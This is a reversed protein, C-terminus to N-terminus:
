VRALLSIIELHDEHDLLMLYGYSQFSNKYSIDWTYSVTLQGHFIMSMKYVVSKMWNEYIKM